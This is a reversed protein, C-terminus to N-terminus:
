GSRSKRDKKSSKQKKQEKSFEKEIAKLEKLQQKLQEKTLTSLDVEELQSLRKELSPNILSHLHAVLEFYRDAHTM